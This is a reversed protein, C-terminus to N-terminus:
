VFVNLIILKGYIKTLKAILNKIQYIQGIKIDGRNQNFLLHTNAVILLAEPNEKLAFL